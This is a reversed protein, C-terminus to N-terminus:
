TTPTAGLLAARRAAQVGQLAQTIKTATPKDADEIAALVTEQFAQVQTASYIREMLDTIAKLYERLERSVSTRAQWDPVMVQVPMIAERVKAQLKEDMFESLPGFADELQKGLFEAAAYASNPAAPEQSYPDWRVGRMPTVALHAEEIWTTLLEELRQFRGELSTALRANEAALKPEHVAPIAREDLSAFYRKVASPSVEEDVGQDLLAQTLQLAIQDIPVCDRRAQLAQEELHHKVIKLPRGM